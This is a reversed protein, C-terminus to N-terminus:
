LFLRLCLLRPCHLALSRGSHDQEKTHTFLSYLTGTHTFKPCLPQKKRDVRHTLHTDGGLRGITILAYAKEKKEQLELYEKHRLLNGGKTRFFKIGAIEHKMPTPLKDDAAIM